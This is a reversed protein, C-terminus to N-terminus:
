TVASAAVTATTTASASPQFKAQNRRQFRAAVPAWRSRSPALLFRDLARIAIAKVTMTAAKAMLAHSAPDPRPYGPM